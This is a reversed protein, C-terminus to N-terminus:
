CWTLGWYIRLVMNTWPVMRLKMNTGLVMRLVM